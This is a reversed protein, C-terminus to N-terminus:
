REVTEQNWVRETVADGNKFFFVGGWSHEVKKYRDGRGDKVVIRTTIIKNGEESVTETIGSPFQEGLEKRYDEMSVKEIDGSVTTQQPNEEKKKKRAEREAERRRREREEWRDLRKEADVSPDKIEREEKKKETLPKKEQTQEKEVEKEAKRLVDLTDKMSLEIDAIIVKPYVNYPRLDAAEEYTRIAKLYHKGEFLRHGRNMLQQFNYDSQAEIKEREAIEIRDKSSLEEFDEQGFSATIQFLMSIILIHIKM